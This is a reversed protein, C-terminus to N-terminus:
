TLLPRPEAMEKSRRRGPLPQIKVPKVRAMQKDFNARAVVYAQGVVSTELARIAEEYTQTTVEDPMKGQAVLEDIQRALTQIADLQAVTEPDNKLAAEARRLTQYETSQGILRGLELAKEDIM